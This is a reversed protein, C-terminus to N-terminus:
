WVLGGIDEEEQGDKLQNTRFSGLSKSRPIHVTRLPAGVLRPWYHGPSQQQPIMGPSPATVKHCPSRQWLTLQNLEPGLSEM